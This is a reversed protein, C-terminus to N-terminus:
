TFIYHWYAHHLHHYFFICSVPIAPSNIHFFAQMTDYPRCFQLLVKLFFIFTGWLFFFHLFELQRLCYALMGQFCQANLELASCYPSLCLSTLPAIFSTMIKKSTSPGTKLKYFFCLMQSTCYLSTLYFTHRHTRQVRFSYWRNQYSCM